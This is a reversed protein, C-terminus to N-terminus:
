SKAQFKLFQSIKLFQLQTYRFGLDGSVLMFFQAHCGGKLGLAPSTPVQPNGPSITLWDLQIPSDLSILCRPRWMCTCVHVCEHIYVHMHWVCIHLTQLSDTISIYSLNNNSNDLYDCSRINQLSLVIKKLNTKLPSFFIGNNIKVRLEM